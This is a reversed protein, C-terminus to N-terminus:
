IVKKLLKGILSYNQKKNKEKEIWTGTKLTMMPKETIRLKMELFLEKM